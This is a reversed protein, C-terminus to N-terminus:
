TQKNSCCKSPPYNWDYLYSARKTTETTCMNGMKIINKYMAQMQKATLNHSVLHHNQCGRSTWETDFRRDHIRLINNVSSLWAGVSVDESKYYRCCLFRQM